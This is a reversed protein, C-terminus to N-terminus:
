SSITFSSTRSSVVHLLMPHGAGCTISSPRDLVYPSYPQAHLPLASHPAAQFPVDHRAAHSTQSGYRAM